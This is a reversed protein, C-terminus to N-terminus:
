SAHPHRAFYSSMLPPLKKVLAAEEHNTRDESLLERVLAEFIWFAWDQITKVKAKADKASTALPLQSSTQKAHSKRRERV